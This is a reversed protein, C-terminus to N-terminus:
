HSLGTELITPLPGHLDGLVVIDERSLSATASTGLVAQGIIRRRPRVSATAAVTESVRCESLASVVSSQGASVVPSFSGEPKQAVRKASESAAGRWISTAGLPSTM